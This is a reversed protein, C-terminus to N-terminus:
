VGDEWMVDMWVKSVQSLTIEFQDSTFIKQLDKCIDQADEFSTISDPDTRFWHVPPFHKDGRRQAKKAVNIVYSM